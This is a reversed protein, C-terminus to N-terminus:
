KSDNPKTSEFIEAAHNKQTQDAAFIRGSMAIYVGPSLLQVGSTALGLNFFADSNELGAPVMAGTFVIVQDAKRRLMLTQASETMTDTGHLVVIHREPLEAIRAALAERHAATMELSDILMLTECRWPPALRASTLWKEVRSHDFGLTGSSPLYVKEITGGCSIFVLPEHSTM